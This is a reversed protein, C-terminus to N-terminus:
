DDDTCDDSLCPIVVIDISGGTPAPAETTTAVAETTTPAETTVPAETSPPCHGLFRFKVGACGIACMSNYTIGDKGCVPMDIQDPCDCKSGAVDAERKRRNDDPCEGESALTVGDTAELNCLNGYTVGDDGCVPTYDQTCAVLDAETTAETTAPAPTAPCNGLFRFQTGACGIACMSNYTVGDKGCVPMGIQDPCECKSGAVDAERKRRANDTCKGEHKLTVGQCEMMCKNGYEVGDNGCVPKHLLICPCGPAGLAAAIFAALVIITRM